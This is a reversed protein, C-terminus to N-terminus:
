SQHIMEEKEHVFIALENIRVLLLALTIVAFSCQFGHNHM